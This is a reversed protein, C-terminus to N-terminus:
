KYKVDPVKVIFNFILARQTAPFIIYPNQNFQIYSRKLDINNYFKKFIKGNNRSTIFTHPILNKHLEEGKYNCLTIFFPSSKAGGGAPFSLLQNYYKFLNSTDTIRDSIQLGILIAGSISPDQDFYLKQNPEANVPIQIISSITREM